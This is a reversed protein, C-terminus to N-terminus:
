RELMKEPGKGRGVGSIRNEVRVPNRVTRRVCWARDHRQTNMGKEHQRSAILM